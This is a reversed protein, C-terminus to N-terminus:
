KIGARSLKQKYERPTMNYIQRFTRNFTRQSTFGSCACINTISDNTTRILGAAYEARILALYNRFNIKIKDSFIHSIYFKSVSFEKALTELTIDQKFNQGIYQIIKQTLHEVPASTNKKLHLQDIIKSFIVISWGLKESFSSCVALQSFAFKATEDIDTIIPTETTMESLNPFIGGFLSPNIILIVSEADRWEDRYYHHVTDPFIIAAEGPKIEYRKENINIHQGISLVYIIEIQEHLHSHFYLERTNHIVTLDSPQFEYFPIM